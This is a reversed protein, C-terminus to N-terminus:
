PLLLAPALRLLAPTLARSALQQQLLVPRQPRALTQHYPSLSQSQLQPLLLACCLVAQCQQQVQQPPSALLLPQLSQV